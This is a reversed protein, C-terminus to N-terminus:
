MMRQKFRSEKLIRVMEENQHKIRCHDSCFVQRDRATTFTKGCRRCARIVKPKRKTVDTNVYHASPLTLDLM